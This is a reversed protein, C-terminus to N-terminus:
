CTNTVLKTMDCKLGHCKSYLCQCGCGWGWFIFEFNLFRFDMQGAAREAESMLLM